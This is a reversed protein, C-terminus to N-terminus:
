IVLFDANTLAIGPTLSAFQVRAGAGIGDADFFLNGSVTNYIIRDSADAALGTANAVFAAAALVGNALGTFIANELQITDDIVSFDVITDNNGGGLTTNFIFADAGTGGLLRDAALGGFLRDNGAGGSLTDNGANGVLIDNGAGSSLSNASANGTLRDNGTGSTLNEIGLLTDSGYGTAQAVLLNLNVTAAAAGIFYARDIGAGGVLRDNGAGGNLFDNGANGVLIDNGRMGELRNNAATGIIRDNGDGTVANEFSGSLTGWAAGNVRFTQGSALNLAVNGVVAALNLWDTGGNADSITARSPDFGRMALYENTIHYVDNASVASGYIDLAASRLTTFDLGWVDAVNLTWTGASLEGRLQDIGFIWDGDVASGSGRGGETVTIVTGDASTLTIRLDGVYTTVFDLHLAVHDIEVNGAVTFTTTFGVPDADILTVDAFDNLGSHVVQENASTQAAAFYNWVEAMRVANYANVMGYGYNTHIHNGGGNWNGSASAHWLGDEDVDAVGADFASGTLTSSAALINQVDRWGLGANADLMLSVVGSVVPTAASTGDFTTTYNGPDFGPAGTIDTTVAAAPAAVLVSAGFNSYWAAIGTQETAAVTITFRSANVGDGNANMDDNGAAQVIVTGLGGRGTASITGYAVDVQDAFNGTTLSQSFGYDPTAGWSNSTLDFRTAGQLVVDVFNAIVGNVDGYRAPDFINVGTLSVGWAVGVGGVGNADAGILGAASTGHGDIPAATLPFPDVPNLSGDVVHRTADYNAALDEHNYDVGTDYVGVHVGTGNFENWITEIDGILDFHWQSAYLPDTPATM